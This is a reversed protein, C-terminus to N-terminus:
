QPAEVSIKRSDGGEHSLRIRITETPLVSKAREAWEVLCISKEDDLFDQFGLSELEDVDGLRYLDFHHFKMQGEYIHMIVFTPSKIESEQIGFSSVLAKIFTTKGAGLDGEFALIEGGRLTAALDRAVQGTEAPSKTHDTKLESGM